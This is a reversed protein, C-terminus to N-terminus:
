KTPGMGKKTSKTRTKKADLLKKIRTEIENATTQVLAEIQSQYNEIETLKDSLTQLNQLTEDPISHTNQSGLNAIMEQSNHSTEQLKALMNELESNKGELAEVQSVLKTVTELREELLQLKESQGEINSKLINSIVEERDSNASISAQHAVQLNDFESKLSTNSQILAEIQTKLSEYSSNLSTNAQTIERELKQSSENLVTIKELLKSNEIKDKNINKQIRTLLVLIVVIILGLVGTSILPLIERVEYGSFISLYEQM